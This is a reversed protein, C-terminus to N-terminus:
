SLLVSNRQKGVEMMIIACAVAANLSDVATNIPIRSLNDCCSKIERSIGRAESGIVIVTPKRYDNEFITTSADLATGIVQYGAAKLNEIEGPGVSTYVPVNLIGGMSARVAKPSFPDTCGNSLLVGDINLAWATRIITGLNGPDAIQDLLILSANQRTLEEFGPRLIPAIAIIGQPTETDAIAKFLRSDIELWQLWSFQEYLVQYEEIHTEDVLVRILPRKSQLAESVMTKGELLFMQERARYKRNKLSIAQKIVQNDKSTIKKM